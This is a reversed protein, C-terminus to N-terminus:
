SFSRLSLAVRAGRWTEEKVYQFEARMRQVEKKKIHKVETSLQELFIKLSSRGQERLESRSQHRRSPEQRQLWSKIQNLCEEKDHIKIHNLLEEIIQIRAELNSM